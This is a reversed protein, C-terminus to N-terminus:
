AHSHTKRILRGIPTMAMRAVIAMTGSDTSGNADPRTSQPPSIRDAVPIKASTKAAISPLASPQVFGIMRPASRALRTRSVAKTQHSRWAASGMIFSCSKAIRLKETALTRPRAVDNPMSPMKKGIVMKRWPANPMLGISAPRVMSGFPSMRITTAGIAPRSVSRTPARHIRTLPSERIPVPMMTM